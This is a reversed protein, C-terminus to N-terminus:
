KEFSSKKYVKEFAQKLQHTEQDFQKQSMQRDSITVLKVHKKLQEGLYQLQGVSKRMPVFNGRVLRDYRVLWHSIDTIERFRHHGTQQQRVAHKEM